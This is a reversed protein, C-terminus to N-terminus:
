QPEAFDARTPDVVSEIDLSRLQDVNMEGGDEVIQYSPGLGFTLAEDLADPEGIADIVYPPEVLTGDVLIGGEADEFSTQAVVRVEGNFQMAEADSTRLQQVTDLITDLKVQDTVETITVRIGPGTVPVLGALISLTNAETQAQELAAERQSTDSQLDDRARELRSIETEARQTTGALGNLIDILDQERLGAFTDDVDNSLVQTVGAFGVLALLVAVVVQRRAPRRLARGLQRRSSPPDEPVVPEPM